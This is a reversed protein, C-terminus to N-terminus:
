VTAIVPHLTPRDILGRVREVLDLARMNHELLPLVQRVTGLAQNKVWAV